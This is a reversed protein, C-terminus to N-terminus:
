RRLPKAAAAGTGAESALIPPKIRSGPGGGRDRGRRNATAPLRRGRRGVIGSAKFCQEPERRVQRSVDDGEHDDLGGLAFAAILGAGVAGRVTCRNNGAASSRASSSMGCQAAQARQAPLVVCDNEHVSAGTVRCEVGADPRDTPM